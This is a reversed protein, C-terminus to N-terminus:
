KGILTISKAYDIRIDNLVKAAMLRTDGICLPDSALSTFERRLTVTQGVQTWESKYHALKNSIVTGKPLERLHTNPPLNFSIEEVEQGALCPTPEGNKIDTRDIPGLLIEGPRAGLAIGNPPYFSTGELWETRPGTEFHGAIRYSPAIDYPSSFEYRGKGDLGRSKLEQKAALEPGSNQISAALQRLWIAFPGTSISESDGVLRGNDEFRFKTKISMSAGGSKLMPTRRLTKGSRTAIVVLKGHEGFPLVGFPAVGATSDVFLDFEPLYTIAHNMASLTPPVPLAYSSGYNILVIDATIGKAKLLAVLLASHDKCDGYRNALITDASHPIISGRGLEIAVYRIRRSVWNYIAEAQKRRDTVGATVEDAIKQIAPTVIIKTEAADAYAHGLQDYSAFNSAFFRPVRDMADLVFNDEALPRPNAYHWEYNTTNGAEQKKFKLEHTETRFQMSKPATLHVTVDNHAFTRSYDRFISVLGPLYPHSVYKVTASIVDGVEVDPFVVVKQKQDGYTPNTPTGPVLQEFIASLEVPIKRGDHKLTHAEVIDLTEISSNFPYPQQSYQSIASENKIELETTFVTTVTGDDAVQINEDEKREVASIEPAKKFVAGNPAPVSPVVIDARSGAGTSETDAAVTTRTIMAGPKWAAALSRGTFVDDPSMMLAVDDRMKAAYNRDLLNGSYALSVSFWAYSVAYDVPVGNGERYLLGLQLMANWDRKAAGKQFWDIAARQDQTIGLGKNYLIGLATMGSGSGHNAANQAFERARKYDTAVGLGRMYVFALEAMAQALNKDAAKELWRVGVQPDRPVGAGAIYDEGILMAAPASGEEALQRVIMAGSAQNKGVGWGEMLRNSLEIQASERAVANFELKNKATPLYGPQACGAVFALAGVISAINRTRKTAKIV